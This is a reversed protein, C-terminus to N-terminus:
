VVAKDSVFIRTYVVSVGLKLKYNQPVQEDVMKGYLKVEVIM